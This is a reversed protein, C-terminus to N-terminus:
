EASVFRLKFYLLLVRNDAGGTAVFTGDENTAITLIPGQHLEKHELIQGSSYDIIYLNGQTTGAFVIEEEPHFALSCVEGEEFPIVKRQRPNYIDEFVLTNSKTSFMIQHGSPHIATALVPTRSVETERQKMGSSVEYEYLVGNRDLVYFVREDNSFWVHIVELRTDHFQFAPVRFDLLWLYVNGPFHGSVMYKGSKSCRLATLPSQVGFQGGIVDQGKKYVTLSGNLDGFLILDKEECVEVKVLPGKFINLEKRISLDETNYLFATWDNAVSVLENKGFFKLDMVWSSHKQPLRHHEFKIEYRKMMIKITSTQLMLANKLATQMEKASTYRAKPDKRLAKLIIQWLWKPISDVHIPEEFLHKEMVETLSDGTFPYEGSVLYYLICGVAYIDVSKTIDKASRWQEPAMYYPTGLQAGIQTIELNDRVRAIGFDTIKWLGDKGLLINSPKVDRHIVGNTHAYDLGNLVMMIIRVSEELPLPGELMRDRLTGGNCYEMVMWEEGDWEALEYVQVINPHILQAQIRAERFFRQIFQEVVEIDMKKTLEEIRLRKLARQTQLQQHTGIWVEAFGGVGIVKELQYPGVM